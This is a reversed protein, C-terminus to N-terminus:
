FALRENRWKCKLLAVVSRMDFSVLRMHFVFQSYLIQGDSWGLNIHTVVMRQLILKTKWNVEEVVVVLAFCIRHVRFDTLPTIKLKFYGKLWLLSVYYSVQWKNFFNVSRSLPNKKPITKSLYTQFLRPIVKYDVRWPLKCDGWLWARQCAVTTKEHLNSKWGKLQISNQYVAHCWM